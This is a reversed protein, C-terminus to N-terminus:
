GDLTKASYVGWAICEVASGLDGLKKMKKEWKKEKRIGEKVSFHWVSCDGPTELKQTM